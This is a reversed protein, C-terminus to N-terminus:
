NKRKKGDKKGADKPDSMDLKNEIFPAPVPIERPAEKGNFYKETFVWMGNEWRFADYDADGILTYKKEPENTESVLHEVLILDLEPDYNLRPGASKKYEMVFRAYTGTSFIRKGFSPKEGSMDLLEIIKKDSLYNNEDFGLLTYLPKGQYEKKIINYYVAGMWGLNDAITDKYHAVTESRDILPFLKLSGDPTNLQIAGHQRFSGPTIELQWTIIRFSSDPAYLRSITYLSDFPFQFSYPTKLSRVLLRTFASDLRIRDEPKEEDIIGEAQKLLTVENEQLQQIDDPAIKQGNVTLIILAFFSAFLIRIM